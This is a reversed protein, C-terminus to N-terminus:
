LVRKFFQAAVVANIALFDQHAKSASNRILARFIRANEEASEGGAIAQFSEVRDFGYQEPTFSGEEFRGGEEIRWFYTEGVISVDDLGTAKDHVILVNKELKHCVEAMKEGMALSSVGIMQGRLPVPNLLPGLYNFITPHPISRRIPGLPKLSPHFAPAYVFALHDRRLCRMVKRPNDCIPLGLKEILDFSGVRGTAGRNGHKAITFERSLVVALATSLNIRKLGSGGTGCIDFVKMSPGWFSYKKPLDVSLQRDQLEEVFDIIEAVSAERDHMEVLLERVMDPDTEAYDLIYSAM